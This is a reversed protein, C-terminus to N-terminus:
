ATSPPDLKWRPSWSAYRDPQRHDARWSKGFFVLDLTSGLDLFIHGPNIKWGEHILIKALPGAAVLFVADRRRTVEWDLRALLHDRENMWMRVCCGKLPVHHFPGVLRRTSDRNLKASGVIVLERGTERLAPLFESQFRAANALSFLNGHTIRDLPCRVQELLYRHTERDTEESSFGYFFAPDDALLSRRLAARFVLDRDAKYFWGDKNGVDENRLVRAEGDNFRSFAFARGERVWGLMLNLDTAFNQQFPPFASM